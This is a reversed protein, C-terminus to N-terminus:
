LGIKSLWYDRKQHGSFSSNSHLYAELQSETEPHSLPYPRSVSFPGHQLRIERLDYCDGLDKLLDEPSRHGSYSLDLQAVVIKGIAFRPDAPDAGKDRLWQRIKAEQIKPDQEFRHDKLWVIFEGNFYRTSNVNDLFIDEDQDFFAEEPSKGLQNYSLFVDGFKSGFIFEKQDDLKLECKRSRLFSFNLYALFSKEASSSKFETQAKLCYEFEHILNNLRRISHKINSPAQAYFDSVNWVQGILLEFHHHLANLDNQRMEAHAREKIKHEPLFTFSNIKDIHDQLESAIEPLSRPSYPNGFLLFNKELPWGVRLTHALFHFWNKAIASPKVVLKLTLNKGSPACFKLYVARKM